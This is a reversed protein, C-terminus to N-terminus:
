FLKLLANLDGYEYVALAPVVDEAGCFRVGLTERAGLLLGRKGINWRRWFPVRASM